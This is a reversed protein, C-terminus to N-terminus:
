LALGGAQCWIVSPAASFVPVEREASQEKTNNKQGQTLELFFLEFNGGTAVHIFLALCRLLYRLYSRM